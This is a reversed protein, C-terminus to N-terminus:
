KFYGTVDLILHTTKGGSSKYVMSMNGASLPGTVGNARTDGSPFNITSTTPATNPAPTISVFGAGNQGVVTLNGTVAQAGAPIGWHGDTDLTRPTGSTFKGTLGSLVSTRTDMLRGPDLAFFQLGGGGASPLYYGTVDLILDTRSGAAGKFVLWISGAALKATLGNARNDGRPVNLNSTAPTADNGTLVSVYGASTQGVVTLNATVAVAGTPIAGGGAGEVTLRRPIGNKFRGGLGIATGARSDLIRVPTIPNYGAEEPGALFYGTVDFIVHTKAGTAGKFVASLRGDSALSATVNNARTDGKPFNLTSSGPTATATTTVSVYGASTQGTVTVNGTVAIADSPIGASGAFGAVTFSRPQGTRFIGTVGLASRSDLVRIPTIPTYTAGGTQLQSVNTAWGNVLAYQNAQWAANPVQPDQAVGVYDGWRTGPYTGTGLATPDEPSLSGTAAALRQYAAYSSPYDGASASSQTWVVHLDGNGAYGVGGMYLDRGDKALLFDQRRSPPSSATNLQTVRVCDRTEVVGAAPDCPYTSVFALRGNQWIADTPRGDVANAITAPTGPQAPQPPTGFGAVVGAESLDTIASLTTVGGGAPSGTIQAYLVGDDALDRGIVHVTASTAPTQLAPRWTSYSATPNLFYDVNVSGTGRLESWALVDIETGQFPEAVDCGNLGVGDVLPFVNASLVVKDTSTGIGPYDPVFDPYAISLVSWGGTPDATDSIAVDIYGTGIAAETTSYCDFSTEVAVWRNQLRDFIVRPDFVEAFYVGPDIASIGFFDVMAVTELITGGRDTIRFTTNVAQIVHDPGVAIWPDPPESGTTDQLGAFATPETAAADTNTTALEAAPPAVALSRPSTGPAVSSAPEPLRLLPRARVVGDDVAAPLSGVDIRRPGRAGDIDPRDADGVVVRGSNRVPDSSPEAAVVAAAPLATALVLIVVVASLARRGSVLRRRHRRM